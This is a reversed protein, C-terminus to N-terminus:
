SYGLKVMGRQTLGPLFRETHGYVEEIGWRTHCMVLTQVANVEWLQVLLRDLDMWQGRTEESMQKVNPYDGLTIYISVKHLYRHDSTLTKLTMVACVNDLRIFRFSVEKLRKAQSFDAPIADPAPAFTLRESSFFSSLYLYSKSPLLCYVNVIELTDSCGLAL